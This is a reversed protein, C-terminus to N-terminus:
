YIFYYLVTVASISFARKNPWRPPCICAGIIDSTQIFMNAHGNLQPV